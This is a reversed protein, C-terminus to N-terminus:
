DNAHEGCFSLVQSQIGLVQRFIGMATVMHRGASSLPSLVGTVPQVSPRASDTLVLDALFGPSILLTSPLQPLCWLWGRDPCM